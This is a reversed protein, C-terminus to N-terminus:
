SETKARARIMSATHMSIDPRVAVGRARLTRRPRM